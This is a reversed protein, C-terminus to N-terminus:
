VLFWCVYLCVFSNEHDSEQNKQLSHVALRFSEGKEGIQKSQMVNVYAWFYQYGPLSLMLYRLENQAGYVYFKSHLYETGIHTIDSRSKQVSNQCQIKWNLASCSSHNRCGLTWWCHISWTCFDLGNNKLCQIQMQIYQVPLTAYYYSRTGGM